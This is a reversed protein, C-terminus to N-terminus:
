LDFYRRKWNASLYQLQRQKEDGPPSAGNQHGRTRNRCNVSSCCVSCVRLFGVVFRFNSDSYSNRGDELGDGGVILIEKSEKQKKRNLTKMRDIRLVGFCCATLSAGAVSGRGCAGSLFRGLFRVDGLLGCVSVAM